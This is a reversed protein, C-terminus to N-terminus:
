AQTTDRTERRAAEQVLEVIPDVHPGTMAEAPLILVRISTLILIIMITTYRFISNM